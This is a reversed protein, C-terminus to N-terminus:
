QLNQNEQMKKYEQMIKVGSSTGIRTAGAEILAVADHYTRIGGSAKIGVGIYMDTNSKILMVDEPTAKGESFGTCTKVFDAGGDCAIKTAIIKEYDTLLGTEIIVKLTRDKVINSIEFIENYVYDARGEKLAGVNIVMDLEDCGNELAEWTEAMKIASSVAGLPFGIVTGVKTDTGALLEQALPVFQPLICVSAFDWERAEKCLKEIDYKTTSAKLLTHDIYKNIKM